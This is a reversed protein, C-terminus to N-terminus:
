SSHLAILQKLREVALDIRESTSGAEVAQQLDHNGSQIWTWAAFSLRQARRRAPYLGSRCVPEYRPEPEGALGPNFMALSQQEEARERQEAALSELKFDAPWGVSPPPPLLSLLHPPPYKAAAKGFADLQLWLQHEKELVTAAAAAEDAQVVEDAQGPTLTLQLSTELSETAM